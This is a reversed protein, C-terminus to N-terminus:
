EINSTQDVFEPTVSAGIVPVALAAVLGTAAVLGLITRPGKRARQGSM